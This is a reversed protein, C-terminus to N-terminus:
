AGANKYLGRHDIAKAAFVMRAKIELGDVEFGVRQETFLDGEGELFAYEITDFTGPDVSLFWENGTLRAEVIPQLATNYVPNITGPTAPVYNTSTYQHAALESNPGVILHKPTLNLQTKGDLDKQIRVAKRAAQLSTVDIAAGSAALNNHNAHFLAVGDSMKPNSLLIAYVLDSQKQAAQAAISAAIRNFASLDDNIIMEWSLCFKRGYKTLKYAESAEGFSGAKYEGGELVEDFGTVQGMQIRTVERFDAASTRRCFPTFTRPALDYAARLTRNVTNGLIIPFDAIMLSGASRIGLAVEAVERRSLGATNGGRQHIVERAMELMTYGRYQESGNEHAISPSLRVQLAREMRASMLRAGEAARDQGVNAQPTSGAGRRSWEEVCRQRALDPTMAPDTFLTEAFEIPLGAARVATLIEVSRNGNTVPPAPAPPTAPAAPQVPQAPPPANRQGEGQTGEAAPPNGEAAPPAPTVPVAPTAPTDTPTVKQEMSRDSFKNIVLVQKTAPPEGENKDSRVSASTDAPVPVFSVEMPEWDVARYIEQEVTGTLIELEYKFVRYGVSVWRIIGDRVENFIGNAKEATSFRLRCYGKQGDTWAKEVVGIVCDAVSGWRSHNDLVSAGNNMFDLRVEGDKFSLSEMMRADYYPMPTPTDSGFVVEVTRNKEDVTNAQVFARIHLTEPIKITQQQPM